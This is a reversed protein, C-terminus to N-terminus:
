LEPENLKGIHLSSGVKYLSGEKRLELKKLPSEWNLFLAICGLINILFNLSLSHM